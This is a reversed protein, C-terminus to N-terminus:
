LLNSIGKQKKTDNNKKPGASQPLQTAQMTKHKVNKIHDYLYSVLLNNHKATFHSLM